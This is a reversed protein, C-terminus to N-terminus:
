PLIIRRTYLDLVQSDLANSAFRPVPAQFMVVVRYSPGLLAVAIHRFAVGRFTGHFIAMPRQVGGVFITKMTEFVMGNRRAHYQALKMPDNGAVDIVGAMILVGTGDHAITLGDQVSTEFTSPVVLQVGQGVDIKNGDLPASAGWQDHVAAVPPSPSPDIEGTHPESRPPDRDVSRIPRASPKRLTAVVLVLVAVGAVVAAGIPLIPLKGPLRPRLRHTAHGAGAIGPPPLYAPAPVSGAFGRPDPLAPAPPYVPQTPVLGGPSAPYVPQAAVLGGPSAPYVPQTPILGGPSAPYVPQTPVLGGPSAPYVPQTPYVPQAAVLGGPARGSPHSPSVASYAVPTGVRPGGGPPVAGHAVSPADPALTPAVASGAAARRAGGHEPPGAPLTALLGALQESFLEMTAPREGPSKAMAGLILQDLAAPLGLEPRRQSPPVPRELLHKSLMALITPAEYPLRGTVMEYLLCGLAYIDTRGDIAEARIQEPAMYQPTGLMDGQQTMALQTARTDDRLKAIGFDLVRAVDRERGRDQLMVNDPKLDRHVISRAHADSLSAAVQVAIALARRPPLPAERQIVARLSRGEILEMAIFLTGDTDQGFDYINVTNPHNLKAVAEAEANFRRLLMQNGLVDPRLLKVAVTRKLSIQEARFVTGMGGEGLKALMRYRGAIERGIMALGPPAEGLSPSSAPETSLAAAGCGGCFRAAGHNDAGCQLCKM